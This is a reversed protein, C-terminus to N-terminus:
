PIRNSVGAAAATDTLATARASKGEVAGIIEALTQAAGQGMRLQVGDVLPRNHKDRDALARRLYEAFRQFDSDAALRKLSQATVDDPQTILPM